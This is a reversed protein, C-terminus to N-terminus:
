TAGAADVILIGVDDAFGDAARALGPPVTWAGGDVRVSIRHVGPDAPLSVTWWGDGGGSLAIPAWATLDGRVDVQHAAPAFLRLRVRGAAADATFQSPPAGAPGAHKESPEERPLPPTGRRRLSTRVELALARRRQSVNWLTDFCSWTLADESNASHANKMKHSMGKFSQRLFKELHLERGPWVAHNDRFDEYIFTGKGEIGRRGRMKASAM